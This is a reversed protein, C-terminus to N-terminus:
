PPLRESDRGAFAASSGSIRTAILPLTDELFRANQPPEGFDPVKMLEGERKASEHAVIGPASYKAAAWIHNPPLKEVVCSRIFDDVLFQHSGSHGNPLGNFEKPLRQIPHVRSVGSYFDIQAGKRLEQEPDEHWVTRGCRLLDTLDTIKKKHTTWMLGNAQEEYCGKTGFLSVRVPNGVGHAVRRFENIRCMGGDSTRFLATENSFINDWRNAGVRFIGDKHRDAYGLCSVQTMKAGTVALVMSTSHTPYLMPPFGATKKWDKGGSHQYAAYFGHSMDHLYEGEGYVFRGFEGKRFKDRCFINSPYYYSTEGLMYMLGTRKVTAILEELEELTVATPVASYVHKGAKLAQIAQPAHMWRQTFIAVADVDSACLEELSAFTRRLGFKAAAAQRRDPFIEALCVEQVLPHAQFLSIFCDAFAGGGCIGIKLSARKKRAEKKRHM